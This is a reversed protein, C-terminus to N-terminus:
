TILKRLGYLLNSSELTTKKSLLECNCHLCYYNLSFSRQYRAFDIAAQRVYKLCYDDNINTKIDNIELQM